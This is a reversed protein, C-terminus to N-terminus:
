DFVIYLKAPERGANVIEIRHRQTYLPVWRCSVPDDAAKCVQQDSQDRVVLRPTPGQAVRVVIQASRGGLFTQNLQTSAGPALAVTRWAPGLARGRLPVADAPLSVLWRRLSTEDEDTQAVPALRDLRVAARALAAADASREAREAMLLADAVKEARSGAEASASAAVPRDPSATCGALM